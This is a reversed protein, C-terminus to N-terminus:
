SMKISKITTLYNAVSNFNGQAKLNNIMKKMEDSKM